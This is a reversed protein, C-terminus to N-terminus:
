LTACLRRWDFQAGPDTKRSPAIDSHGVINDITILPFLTMIQRCLPFLSQYQLETFSDRDSGELEIGVSYNNCDAVGNWSSAGAHWARHYVSVFQVTRGCRKIYFHSSVKTNKIQSFYPDKQCDLNNCFFDEVYSKGYQLPPLSICHIVLLSIETNAPRRNFNPSAIRQCNNLWGRQSHPINVEVM